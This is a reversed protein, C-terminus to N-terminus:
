CSEVEKVVTGAYRDHPMLAGDEETFGKRDKLYSFGSITDRYAMRKILQSSTPEEGDENELALGMAKYGATQGWQKLQAYELAWMVLTPTVLAHVAESKVKKRLLKEVSLTVVTSIAFDIFIADTRKQSISTM